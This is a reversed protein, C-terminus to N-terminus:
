SSQVGVAGAPEQAFGSFAPSVYRKGNEMAALAEFLDSGASRKLVVADAGAALMAEAVLAHAHNALVIVKSDPVLAHITELLEPIAEREVFQDVVVVQPNLRAVGQKLSQPNAVLYVSEFESELLGRIGESAEASRDALIACNFNQIGM